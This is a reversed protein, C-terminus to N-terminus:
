SPDAGRARALAVMPVSHSSPPGREEHSGIQGVGQGSSEHHSTIERGKTVNTCATYMGHSHPYCGLLRWYVGEMLWPVRFCPVFTPPIGQGRSEHHSTIERGKRASTCAAHMGHSHPMCLMLLKWYVGEMLSPVPLCPSFSSLSSREGSLREGLGQGRSGHHSTIERGKRASTCAAYMGHSHPMGGLLKWYVGEMLSPVPLCPSFSSLSSVEGSLREGLGQGRSGDHSTIDGKQYKHM